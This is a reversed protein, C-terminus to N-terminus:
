YCFGEIVEIGLTDKVQHNSESLYGELVLISRSSAPVGHVKNESDLVAKYKVCQYIGRLIDDDQSIRSKVEIAIRTGDQQECYVDLRDGSLLTYENQSHTINTLGISKPYNAIHEKLRKHLDSEAGRHHKGNRISEEDDSSYTVSPTLGLSRLVTDWHEYDLAAAVLGNAVQRKIEKSLKDYGPVVIGFGNSPIDSSKSTCLVNLSPINKGKFAPKTSLVNLTEHICGLVHGIGRYMSTYGLERNLDSYHNTTIRNQAWRVLIPIALSVLESTRQTGCINSILDPYTKM